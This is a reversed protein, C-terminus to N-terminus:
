FIRIKLIESRIKLLKLLAYNFFLIGILGFSEEITILFSHYFIQTQNFESYPGYLSILNGSFLEFGMEGLVYIFGSFFILNRIRVPFTNVFNYFILAIILVLISYPIVWAHYLFGSTNWFVRLPRSIQEHLAFIEDWGILFFLFSLIGFYLKDKKSQSSLFLLLLLTSSIFIMSGQYATPINRESNLNFSNYIRVDPFSPINDFYYNCLQSIIHLSILATIILFNIKLFVKPNITINNLDM